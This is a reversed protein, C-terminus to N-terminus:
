DFIQSGHGLLSPDRRNHQPQVILHAVRTVNQDPKSVFADRAIAHADADAVDAITRRIIL